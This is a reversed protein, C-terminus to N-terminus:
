NPLSATRKSFAIRWIVINVLLGLVMAPVAADPGFTGGTLWAAAGAKPSSVLFGHHSGIGLVSAEVFDYGLHMGISMWLRGTIVYLLGLTIGANIIIGFVLLWSHHTMHVLGFIASSLIIGTRVGWVRSFIRLLVARFALEELVASIYSDFVLDDFWHAWAGRHATYLRLVWLLLGMSTIFVGGFLFGLPIDSLLPLGIQLEWADRREFQKILLVYVACALLLFAIAPFYSWNGHLGMWKAGFVSAFFSALAVTFLLAAWLLARTKFLRGSALVGSSAPDFKTNTRHPMSDM